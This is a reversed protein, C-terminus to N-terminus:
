ASAGAKFELKRWLQPAQRDTDRCPNSGPVQWIDYKDRTIGQADDGGGDHVLSLDL